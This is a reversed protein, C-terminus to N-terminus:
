CKSMSVLWREDGVWGGTTPTFVELTINARTNGVDCRYVGANNERLDTITLSSTLNTGSITFALGELQTGDVKSWVIPRSDDVTVCTLMVTTRVEYPGNAPSATITPAPPDALSCM